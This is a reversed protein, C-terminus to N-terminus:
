DGREKTYLWYTGERLRAKVPNDRIYAMYHGYQAESRVIHDYSENQWFAGSKGLRANAKRASASKITMMLKSLQFSGSPEVLCHVHTPMIVAAHLSLRSGDFYLLSQRVDERVDPLALACSGTGADLWQEFPEGFRENYEAWTADDWPQPRSEAWAAFEERWAALKSQPISDALRFTVWYIARDTTWHPLNRQTKIIEFDYTDMPPLTACPYPCTGCSFPRSTTFIHFPIYCLAGARHCGFGIYGFGTYGFGIYCLAGARHAAASAAAQM